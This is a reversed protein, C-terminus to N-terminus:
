ADNHMPWRAGAKLCYVIKKLVEYFFLKYIVLTWLLGHLRLMALTSLFLDHWKRYCCIYQYVEYFFQLFQIFLLEKKYWGWTYGIHYNISMVSQLPLMSKVKMFDFFQIGCNKRINGCTYNIRSQTEKFDM